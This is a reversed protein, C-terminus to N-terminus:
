SQKLCLFLDDQLFFLQFFVFFFNVNLTSKFWPGGAYQEWVRGRSWPSSIISFHFKEPFKDQSCAVLHVFCILWTKYLLFARNMCNCTSVYLWASLRIQNNPSNKWQHRSHNPIVQSVCFYLLNLGLIGQFELRKPALFPLFQICLALPIRHLVFSSDFCSRKYSNEVVVSKLVLHDNFLIKERKLFLQLHKMMQSLPLVKPLCLQVINDQRPCTNWFGAELM